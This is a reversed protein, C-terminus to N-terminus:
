RPSIAKAVSSTFPPLESLATATVRSINAASGDPYQTVRLTSDPQLTIGEAAAAADGGGLVQVAAAGTLIMGATALVLTSRKM